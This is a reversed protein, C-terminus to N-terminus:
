EDVYDIYVVDKSPMYRGNYSYIISKINGKSDKRYIIEYNTKGIRACGTALYNERLGCWETHLIIHKYISEPTREPSIHIERLNNLSINTDNLKDSSYVFREYDNTGFKGPQNYIWTNEDLYEIFSSISLSEISDNLDILRQRITYGKGKYIINDFGILATNMHTKRNNDGFQVIRSLRRTYQLRDSNDYTFDYFKESYDPGYNNEHDRYKRQIVHRKIKNNAGLEWKYISSTDIIDNKYVTEVIENKVRVYVVKSPIPHNIIKHRSIVTGNKKEEDTLEVKKTTSYYDTFPITIKKLMNREDYEFFITDQSATRIRSVMKQGEANRRQASVTLPLLLLLLFLIHEFKLVKKMLDPNQKVLKM